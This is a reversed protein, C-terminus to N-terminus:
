IAAHCKSWACMEWNPCSVSLVISKLKCSPPWESIIFFGIRWPHSEVLVIAVYNAKCNSMRNCIRMPAVQYHSSTGRHSAGVRTESGPLTFSQLHLM